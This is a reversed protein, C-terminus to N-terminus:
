NFVCYNIFIRGANDKLIESLLRRELRYILVCIPLGPLGHNKAHSVEVLSRARYRLEDVPFLMVVDSMALFSQSIWRAYESITNALSIALRGTERLHQPSDPADAGSKLPSALSSKISNLSCSYKDDHANKQRHAIDLDENKDSINLPATNSAKKRAHQSARDMPDIVARLASFEPPLLHLEPVLFSTKELPRLHKPLVNKMHVEIATIAVEVLHVYGDRSDPIPEGGRLKEHFSVIKYEYAVKIRDKASQYATDLRAATAHIVTNAKNKAHAIIGGHSQIEHNYDTVIRSLSSSAHKLLGGKTEAEKIYNNAKNVMGFLSSRLQQKKDTGPSTGTAAETLTAKLPSTCLAEPSLGPVPMSTSVIQKSQGVPTSADKPNARGQRMQQIRRSREQLQLDRRTSRRRRLRTKVEGGILKFNYVITPSVPGPARQTPRQRIGIKSKTRSNAAEDTGPRVAQHGELYIKAGDVYVAIASLVKGHSIAFFYAFLVPDCVMVVSDLSVLQSYQWRPDAEKPPAMMRVGKFSLRGHGIDIHVSDIEIPLKFKGELNQIFFRRALEDIVRLRYAAYLTATLAFLVRLEFSLM